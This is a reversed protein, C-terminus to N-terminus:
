EMMYKLYIREMQHLSRETSFNKADRICNRSCKEYFEKDSYLTHVKNVFDDPRRVDFLYGNEGDRVMECHGRVYSAVVPLGCAMGEVINMGFGEEVSASLVLDSMGFLEPMNTCYGLFDIYQSVKLTKALEKMSEFLQGNGAFLVKINKCKLAVKGINRIIFEHNKRPIFEAAYILLFKGQYGKKCKLREKEVFSVPSFKNLNVGIGSIKEVSTVSSEFYKKANKYDENNITIICDTRRALYWEMPFYLMWNKFPAGKYFHFGHTTYLMKFSNKKVKKVALRAIVSGM